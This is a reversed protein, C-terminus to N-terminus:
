FLIMALLFRLFFGAKRHTNLRSAAAPPKWTPAKEAVVEGGKQRGAHSEIQHPCGEASAARLEALDSEKENSTPAERVMETGHPTCHSSSDACTSSFNGRRPTIDGQPPSTKQRFPKDSRFFPPPARFLCRASLPRHPTKARAPPSFFLVGLVRPPLKAKKTAKHKRQCSLNNVKHPFKTNKYKNYRSHHPAEPSLAAAVSLLGAFLM